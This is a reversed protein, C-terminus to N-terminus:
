VRVTRHEPSYWAVRVAASARHRAASPCGGSTTGTPNSQCVAHGAHPPGMGLPTGGTALPEHTRADDRPLLVEGGPMLSTRRMLDADSPLGALAHHAQHCGPSSSLPRHANSRPPWPARVAMAGELTPGASGTVPRMSAGLPFEMAHPQWVQDPRM